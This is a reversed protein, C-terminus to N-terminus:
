KQISQDTSHTYVIHTIYLKISDLNFGGNLCLQLVCVHVCESIFMIYVTCWVCVRACM